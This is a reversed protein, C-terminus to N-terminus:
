RTIQVVYAEGPTAHAQLGLPKVADRLVFGWPRGGEWSVLRDPDVGQGYRVRWNKPLLQRVAFRLPVEHGFGSAVATRTKESSAQSHSAPSLGGGPRPLPSSPTAQLSFEARAMGSVCGIALLTVISLLRM